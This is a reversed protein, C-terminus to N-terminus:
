ARKRPHRQHKGAEPIVEPVTLEVGPYSVFGPLISRSGYVVDNDIFLHTMGLDMVAIELSNRSRRVTRLNRQLPPSGSALSDSIEETTVGILLFTTCKDYM